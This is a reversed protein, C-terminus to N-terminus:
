EQRFLLIKNEQVHSKKTNLNKLTKTLQTNAPRGFHAEFPPIRKTNNPILRINEIIHTIKDALTEKVWKHYINIVSM